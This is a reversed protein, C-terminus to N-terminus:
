DPQHTANLEHELPEIHKKFFKPVYIKKDLLDLTEDDVEGINKERVGSRYYDAIDTGLPILIKPDIIRGFYNILHITLFGNNRLTTAARICVAELEKVGVSLM